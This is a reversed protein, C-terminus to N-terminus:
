KNGSYVTISAPASGPQITTNSTGAYLGFAFCYIILSNLLYYLIKQPLKVRAECLFVISGILFGFFLMLQLINVHLVPELSKSFTLDLTGAAGPTLMSQPNLFEQVQSPKESNSEVTNDPPM